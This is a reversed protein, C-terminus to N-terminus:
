QPRHLGIPMLKAGDIPIVTGVVYRLGLPRGFDGDFESRLFEEDPVLTGSTWVRQGRAPAGSLVAAPARTTWLDVKRFRANYATVADLPLDGRFLVDSSRAAPGGLMIAGTAADFVDLLARGLDALALAGVGGRM